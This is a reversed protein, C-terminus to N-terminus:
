YVVWIHAIVKYPMSPQANYTITPQSYEFSLNRPFHIVWNNVDDCPSDPIVLVAEIIDSIM